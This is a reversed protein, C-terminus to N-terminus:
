HEPANMTRAARFQFASARRIGQLDTCDTVKVSQRGGTEFLKQVESHQGAGYEVVCLFEHLLETHALQRYFILGDPGGDLATRPEYSQVTPELDAIQATPIYPPNSVIVISRERERPDELIVREWRPQLVDCNHLRCRDIVGHMSFNSLAVELAAASKDIAIGASGPLELLLTALVCGSGTGVDVFLPPRDCFKKVCDLTLDVLCETEPRPCLVDGTVKFQRSYFEKKGVIHALPTGSCRLTCLDQCSNWTSDEVKSALPMSYFPQQCAHELLVRAETHASEGVSQCARLRSSLIGFAESVSVSFRRLM